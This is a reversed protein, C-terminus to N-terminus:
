AADGGGDNAERVRGDEMVLHRTAVRRAQAADHTVWLMGVGEAQRAALMDEAATRAAPDLAATPEDLLLVLPRAMLGRVLALRQREGTSLRAVPAKGIEPPLLLSRVLPVAADWDAFHDSVREAWWGPEAAFYRVMRRWRPAPVAERGVGDLVVRGTSPDLDAIARLLLTKGVGSPGSLSVCEGASLSFDVPGLGPRRLGEVMLM